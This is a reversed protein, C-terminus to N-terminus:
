NKISSITSRPNSKYIRLNEIKDRPVPETITDKPFYVFITSQTEGIMIMTEDDTFYENGLYKFSYFEGTGKRQVTIGRRDGYISSILISLCYIFMVVQTNYIRANPTLRMYFHYSGRLLLAWMFLYALESYAFPDFLHLYIMLLFGIIYVTGNFWSTSLWLLSKGFHEKGHFLNILSFFVGSAIILTGIPIMTYFIEANSIYNRIDISFTEYYVFLFAASQLFVGLTLISFNKLISDINKELDTLHSSSHQECPYFVYNHCFFATRTGSSM